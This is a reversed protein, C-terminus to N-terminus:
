CSVTHDQPDVTSLRRVYADAPGFARADCAEQQTSYPGFVVGYIDAGDSFEQRLSPCAKTWVYNTGPYLGLLEDVVVNYPRDGVASGVFTIYRGDCAENLIPQALGLDGPGRTPVPPPPPATPAPEPPLTSASVPPETSAPLAVETGPPVTTIPEAEAPVPDAPSTELPAGSVAPEAPLTEISTDLPVAAEDGVLAVDDGGSGQALLIFLGGVIVVAAVALAAIMVGSTRAPRDGAGPGIGAHGDTVPPPQRPPQPPSGGAQSVVTTSAVVPPAPAVPATQPGAPAPVVPPSVAATEGFTPASVYESTQPGGAGPGSGPSTEDDSDPRDDTASASDDIPSM